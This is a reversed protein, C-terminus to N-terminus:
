RVRDLRLMARVLWLAMGAVGAMVLFVLGGMRSYLFGALLMMLGTPAGYGLAAHLAQASAM